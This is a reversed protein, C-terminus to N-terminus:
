KVGYLAFSSYQNLNGGNIFLTINNVASTNLWVGSTIGTQGAGSQEQGYLSRATTNKNTNTYDLIDTVFSVPYSASTTLGLWIHDASTTASASASSGNGRLEHIAYNTGTDSNLQMRVWSTASGIMMGRIQLHKYTSPISSFTVSSVGGAGVTATQISEYDTFVVAPNGALFSSYNTRPTTIGGAASLKYVGM